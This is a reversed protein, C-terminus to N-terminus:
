KTKKNILKIVDGITKLDVIETSTFEIHYYDEIELSLEVLDLSDLGFSSLPTKEDIQPTGVKPKILSKVVDITEMM